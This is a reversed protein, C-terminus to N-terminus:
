NRFLVATVCNILSCMRSHAHTRAYTNHDMGQRVWESHADHRLVTATQIKGKVLDALKVVYCSDLAARLHVCVIM